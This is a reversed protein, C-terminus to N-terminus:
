EGEGEGEGWCPSPIKNLKMEEQRSRQIPSLSNQLAENKMVHLKKISSSVTLIKLSNYSGTTEAAPNKV